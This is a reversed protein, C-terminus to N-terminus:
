CGSSGGGTSRRASITSDQGGIIDTLQDTSLQRLSQLNIALKTPQPKTLKKM